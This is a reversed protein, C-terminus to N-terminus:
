RIPPAYMLGGNTWLRNVGRALGLATNEGVNREYTEAYNGIHTIINACWKDDIGLMSGFDGTQGLLRQAAPSSTKRFKRINASSIGMEEANVMCHLSWRVINAWVADGKQVMPGLPEKSIIEPLVLHADPKSLRSRTAALASRDSTVADCGNNNYAATMAANTDFYVPRYRMRGTKFFDQANLDTTSDETVCIRKNGLELASRIGASKPVMFGQGDYYNVGVFEGYEINRSMTWTTNRALLDIKGSVLVKFRESSTLPVFEVATPDDFIASAVARCFDADLGSYDGLSNATAFGRLGSNLGCVVIGRKKVKSLTDSDSQSYLKGSFLVSTSVLLVFVLQSFSLASVAAYNSRTFRVFSIKM